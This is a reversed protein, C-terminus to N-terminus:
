KPRHSLGIEKMVRYVTREAPIRVGEPQKLLLAQYIRIRGYTDNCVDDAVITQMAEALNMATQPTYLGFGIDLRQGAM